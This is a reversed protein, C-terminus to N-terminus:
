HVLLETKGDETHAALVKAYAVQRGSQMWLLIPGGTDKYNRCGIVFNKVAPRVDSGMQARGLDYREGPYAMGWEGSKKSVILTWPPDGKDIVFLTYSGAPIELSDTLPPIVMKESVRFATAEYSGTRWSDEGSEGRLGLAERGFKITSGDSFTCEAAVTHASAQSGPAPSGRLFVPSTLILGAAFCLVAACGLFDYNERLAKM